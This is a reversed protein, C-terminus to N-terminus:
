NSELTLSCVLLNAGCSGVKFLQVTAISLLVIRAINASTSTCTNNPKLKTEDFCTTAYKEGIVKALKRNRIDPMVSYIKTTMLSCFYKGLIVSRFTQARIKNKLMTPTAM